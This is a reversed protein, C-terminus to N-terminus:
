AILHLLQYNYNTKLNTVLVKGTYKLYTFVIEQKNALKFGYSLMNVKM